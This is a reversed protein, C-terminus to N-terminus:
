LALLESLRSITLIKKSLNPKNENNELASIESRYDLADNKNHSRNRQILIPLIGSQQSGFVDDDTDGVYVVQNPQLSTQHLTHHFIKTDPKKFGIEGSITIVEFFDDLRNEKLLSYIHPPHDFNSILGLRKSQKLKNLTTYAEPDVTIHKHWARVASTVTEKIESINLKLNTELGLRKIRREFVTLGDNEVQPEEREFFGDCIQAFEEKTKSLGQKQFSNYVSEFWDTWATSMNGYILLTGYLDFFIANINKSIIQENLSVM